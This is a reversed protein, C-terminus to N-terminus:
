SVLLGPLSDALPVASASLRGLCLARWHLASQVPLLLMAVPAQVMCGCVRTCSTSTFYSLELPMGAGAHTFIKLLCPITCDSPTHPFPMNACFPQVLTCYQRQRLITRRANCLTVNRSPM